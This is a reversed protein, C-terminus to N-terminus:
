GLSQIIPCILEYFKIIVANGRLKSEILCTVHSKKKSVPMGAEVDISAYPEKNFNELIWM